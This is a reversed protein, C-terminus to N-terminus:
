ACHHGSALHVTSPLPYLLSCPTVSDKGSLCWVLYIEWGAEGKGGRPTLVLSSVRTGRSSMQEFAFPLHVCVYM